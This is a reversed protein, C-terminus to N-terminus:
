RQAGTVDASRGVKGYYPRKKGVLCFPYKHHFTILGRGERGRGEGDGSRLYERGPASRLALAAVAGRTVARQNGPMSLPKMIASHDNVWRCLCGRM